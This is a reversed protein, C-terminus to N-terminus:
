TERSSETAFRDHKPDDKAYAFDKPHVGAEMSRGEVRKSHQTTMRSDYADKSTRNPDNPSDKPPGGGHNGAGGSTSTSSMGESFIVNQKQHRAKPTTHTKDKTIHNM